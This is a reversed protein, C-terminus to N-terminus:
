DVDGFREKQACIVLSYSLCFYCTRSVLFVKNVTVKKRRNRYGKYYFSLVWIVNIKKSKTYKKCKRCKGQSLM